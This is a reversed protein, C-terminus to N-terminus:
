GGREPRERDSSSSDVSKQLFDRIMERDALGLLRGVERGEQFIVFTPTGPIGFRSMFVKRSDERIVGVTIPRGLGSTASELVRLTKTFEPGETLCAVLMPVEWDRLASQFAESTFTQVTGASEPVAHM